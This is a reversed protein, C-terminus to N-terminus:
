PIRQREKPCVGHRPVRRGQTRYPDLRAAAAIREWGPPMRRPAIAVPRGKSSASAPEEQVENWLTMGGAKAALASALLGFHFVFEGFGRGAPTPIRGLGDKRRTGM